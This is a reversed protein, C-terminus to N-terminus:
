SGTADPMSGEGRAPADPMSGEGSAPADPMSGEGRAPADPMPGAGSAPADPMPGAGPAPPTPPTPAVAPGTASARGRPPLVYALVVGFVVCCVVVVLPTLTGLAIVSFTMLLGAMGFGLLLGAIAGRIPHRRVRVGARATV